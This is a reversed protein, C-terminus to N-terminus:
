ETTKITFQMQRDAGEMVTIDRREKPRLLTMDTLM